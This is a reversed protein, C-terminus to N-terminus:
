LNVDPFDWMTDNMYHIKFSQYLSDLYKGIPPTCCTQQMLCAEEGYKGGVPSMTRRQFSRNEEFGKECDPLDSSMKLKHCPGRVQSSQGSYCNPQSRMIVFIGGLLMFLLMFNCIIKM